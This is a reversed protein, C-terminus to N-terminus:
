EVLGEPLNMRIVQSNESVEVLWDEVFPILIEESNQNKIILMTQQPYEEWRIVNGIYEKNNFIKFNIWDGEIEDIVEGAIGIECGLIISADDESEIYEFHIINNDGKIEKVSFPVGKEDIIIFLFDGKHLEIDEIHWDIVVEGKFGHRSVIKGVIELPPPLHAM